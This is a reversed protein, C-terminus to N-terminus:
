SQLLEIVATKNIILFIKLNEKKLANSIKKTKTIDLWKERFHDSDSVLLSKKYKKKGIKLPKNFIIFVNDKFLTKIFKEIKGIKVYQTIEEIKREEKEQYKKINKLNFKDISMKNKKM